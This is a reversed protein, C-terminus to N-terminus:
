EEVQDLQLGVAAGAEGQEGHVGGGVVGVGEGGGGGGFPGIAADVADAIVADALPAVLYADVDRRLPSNTGHADECLKSMEVEDSGYGGVDRHREHGKWRVPTSLM